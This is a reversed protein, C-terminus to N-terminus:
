TSSFRGSTSPAASSAIPADRRREPPALKKRDAEIQLTRLTTHPLKHLDFEVHELQLRGAEIRSIDLINSVLSLMLQASGQSSHLLERELSLRRL